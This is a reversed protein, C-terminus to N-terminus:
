FLLSHSSTFSCRFPFILLFFSEAYIKDNQHLNEGRQFSNFSDNIKIKGKRGHFEFINKAILIERANAFIDTSFNAILTLVPFSHPGKLQLLLKKILTQHVNKFLKKDISLNRM